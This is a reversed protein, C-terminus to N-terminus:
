IHTNQKIKQMDWNKRRVLSKIRAMFIAENFPMVEYDNAGAEFANVLTGINKDRSLIIIPVDSIRHIHEILDFCNYETLDIDLIVSDPVNGDSTDIVDFCENATNVISLNWEPQYIRFVDKIKDITKINKGAFLINMLVEKKFFYHGPVEKESSNIDTGPEATQNEWLDLLETIFNDVTQNPTRYINIRTYTEQSIRISKRQTEKKMETGALTHM